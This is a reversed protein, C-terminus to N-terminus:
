GDEGTEKLRQLLLSYGGTGEAMLRKIRRITATSAGVETTIRSYSEHAAVMRAVQLRQAMTDMESATCLDSLLLRFEDESGMTMFARALFASVPIGRTRTKARAM